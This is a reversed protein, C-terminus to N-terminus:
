SPSRKVPFCRRFSPNDIKWEAAASLLGTAKHRTEEWEREPISDAVIGAGVGFTATGSSFVATRIAISFSSEGNFGFYGIAGTYLGRPRNELESIVELARRKPAGSISGGPMMQRLAGVQSVNPRLQGTITSVLHHVHEFREHTLLEPVRVSGFECFQGLDNRELDTIMVLEAAEKASTLLDRAAREDAEIDRYRPRTGKIPRTAVSKGSFRLFCEPSASALKVAGSDLYAGYPAPSISRLKDYYPFASNATAEARYDYSLCAQYIDGSRIWEQTRAVMELFEEESISAKFQSLTALDPKQPAFPAVEPSPTVWRRQHHSFIHLEPYFQFVFDGEFGVHGVAAGTPLGTDATGHYRKELEEELVGWDDDSRGRLILTPERALFSHSAGAVLSSDLFALGESRQWSRAAVIPEVDKSGKM